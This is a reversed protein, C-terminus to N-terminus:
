SFFEVAQGYMGPLNVITGAYNGTEFDFSAVEDRAVCSLNGDPSFRLGRPNYFRISQDPRFIRVLQGSTSDYERVCSIADPAGFPWESSVVINGNPAITLDLPSLQSDDVFRPAVLEGYADFVKITDEGIGSPSMGSALFIRGDPSFAFGRPFPVVDRPLYVSAPGDLSTHLALITRLRRSGVYYRGDHGFVGGGPDLADITGSDRRVQGERDLALVRDNGSNVYLLDGNPDVCVGRPDTVRSDHCFTGLSRGLLDFALIAGYGNGNAGKASSVIIRRTIQANVAKPRDIPVMNVGNRRL